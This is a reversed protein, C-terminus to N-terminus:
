EAAEAIAARVLARPAWRMVETVADPDLECTDRTTIMAEIGFVMAVTNVMRDFQTPSGM